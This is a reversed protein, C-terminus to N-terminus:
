IAQLPAVERQDIARLPELVEEWPKGLIRNVADRLEDEEFSNSLANALQHETVLINGAGDTQNRLIGLEPTFRFLEGAEGSAEFIEFRLYHWSALSSCLKAASGTLDRWSIETRYTGAFNPQSRWQIQASIGLADKIAWDIHTRLASPASHIILTGYSMAKPVATFTPSFREMKSRRALARSAVKGLGGAGALARNRCRQGRLQRSLEFIQRSQAQVRSFKKLHVRLYSTRKAKTPRKILVRKM